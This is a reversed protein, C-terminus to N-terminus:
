FAMKRLCPEVTDESDAPQVGVVETPKVEDEKVAETVKTEEQEVVETMTGAVNEQKQEEQKPEEANCGCIGLLLIM